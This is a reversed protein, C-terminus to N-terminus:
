QNPRPYSIDTVDARYFPFYADIGFFNGAEVHTPLRFGEFDRFKSLVGGFPQLRFAHEPNADSWRQFVVQTPQGDAAVTVNVSQVMDSHTVTVRATNQDVPQWDVTESPLVAAPTWIVAEAVARGFASRAHDPDGGGRAVPLLGGMWFRTWAGSDSGSLRLHGSRVGMKWVFGEPVALVQHAKMAMYHPDDKDSLSFDGTMELEAVRFLPTGENIAFLFFRRAPAPLNAVMDRDFLAPALPQVARLRAMEARDSWHDLARWGALALVLAGVLLAILLMRM